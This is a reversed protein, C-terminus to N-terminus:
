SYGRSTGSITLAGFGEDGTYDIGFQDPNSPDDRGVSYNKTWSLM